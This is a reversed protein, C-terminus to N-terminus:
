RRRVLRGVPRRPSRHPPPLQRRDHRQGPGRVDALRLRRPRPRQPAVAETGAGRSSTRGTASRRSSPSRTTSGRRSCSPRRRRDPFPPSTAEVAGTLAVRYTGPTNLATLDLAICPRGPTTGHAAIRDRPEACSSRERMTSSRSRRGRRRPPPSCTPWRRSTRAPLRAPRGPRRGKISPPGAALSPSEAQAPSAMATPGPVSATSSAEAVPSPSAVAGTAPPSPRSLVLLAVVVIGAVVAIAGLIGARTRPVGAM